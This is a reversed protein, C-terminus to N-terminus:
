IDEKLTLYYCYHSLAAVDQDLNAFPVRQDNLQLVCVNEGKGGVQENLERKTSVCLM